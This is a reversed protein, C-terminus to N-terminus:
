TSAARTTTATPSRKGMVASCIAATIPQSRVKTPVKNTAMAVESGSTATVIEARRMPASSMAM